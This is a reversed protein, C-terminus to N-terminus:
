KDRRKQYLAEERDFLAQMQRSAEEVIRDREDIPAAEPDYIIETGFSLTRMGKHALMPLFRCRKGTKSYYVQALMPFGRFLEGPRGSEYGPADPDADPNEPFILLNDGAQMAEVSKRFTTMLERPKNRFVPVAELKKMAWVSVYGLARAVPWRLPGLWRVQSFTYKYSYEAVEKPDIMMDSISWSRVPVPCFLMGAVPGYVEGHNCLFVIPNSEDPKVNEADKLTHRFAPRLVAMLARILWPQTHRQIVVSELQKELAPNEGGSERIHLFRMVKGIYRNNLPFRLACILAMLVTLLAPAVMVPKFQAALEAVTRPLEQATTVFCLITLAALALMHGLLSALERNVTRLQRYGRLEDGTTFRAVAFMPKEMGELCATCLASGVSCLGLCIYTRTLEPMGEGLMRSFSWLGAIWMALGALILSSLDFRSRKRCWRLLWGAAESGVLTTLVAMAMRILLQEATAALYTYMVILTMEMAAMILMTLQEFVAFANAKRVDTWREEPEPPTKEAAEKMRDRCRLMDYYSVLSCLLYGGFMTVALQWTLSSLLVALVTAMAAGHWLAAYVLFRRESLGGTANVRALRQCVTDRVQMSLVLAFLLWIQPSQLSMPYLVVVCLNLLLMVGLLAWRWLKIGRPLYQKTGASFIHGSVTAVRACMFLAGGYVPMGTLAQSCMMCFIYAYLSTLTIFMAQERMRKM